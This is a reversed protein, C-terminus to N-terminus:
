SVSCPFIVPKYNEYHKKKKKKKKKQYNYVDIWVGKKREGKVLDSLYWLIM